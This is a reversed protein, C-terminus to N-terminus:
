RELPYSSVFTNSAIIQNKKVRGEFCICRSNDTNYLWERGDVGCLVMCECPGSVRSKLYSDLKNKKLLLETHHGCAVEVCKNSEYKCMSDRNCSMEDAYAGCISHWNDWTVAEACHMSDYNWVCGSDSAQCASIGLEGCDGDPTTCEHTKDHIVCGLEVCTRPDSILECGGTPAPTFDPSCTDKSWEYKCRSSELCEFIELHWCENTDKEVCIRDYVDIECGVSDYCAQSFGLSSCATSSKDVVALPIVEVTVAVNSINSSTDSCLNYAVGEPKTYKGWSNNCRFNGNWVQLTNEYYPGYGTHILINNGAKYPAILRDPRVRFLFSKPWDRWGVHTLPGDAFGGYVYGNDPHLFVHLLMKKAKCDTWYDNMNLSSSWVFKNCRSLPVVEQTSEIEMVEGVKELLFNWDGDTLISSSRRDCLGVRVLLLLLSAIILM